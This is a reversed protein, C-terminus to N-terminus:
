ACNGPDNRRMTAYIGATEAAVQFIDRIEEWSVAKETVRMTRESAVGRKVVAIAYLKSKRIIFSIRSWLVGSYAIVQFGGQNQCCEGGSSSELGGHDIFVMRGRTGACAGSLLLCRAVDRGLHGCGVVAIRADAVIKSLDSGLWAELLPPDVAARRARPNLLTLDAPTLHAWLITAFSSLLTTM